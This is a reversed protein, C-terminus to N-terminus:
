DGVRKKAKLVEFTRLEGADVAHSAPFSAKGFGALVFERFPLRGKAVSVTVIMRDRVPKVAVTGYAYGNSWFRTGEAASFEFAGDVASYRFGTLALVTAWGAMARGYHHGCEAEDYPNRKLGDYRARADSICKLGNGIQGEYLMGAAATYELGTWVEAFYPFPNAPRGDPYSAILLGPEDGLAFSRMPNFLDALSDRHNYTMVSGLAARVNEPRALYGLGCVHAMLQGVLQDVLCGNGLQYDPNKFDTSGMGVLLSPAINAPDMPPVIKHIYYRGNFLNADTWLSGQAFLSACTRAFPKDGVRAAMKAAAQLAGLYWFEMEPNPGYYEVDMTNHQCGEMVGDKNADWGGPIWCFELAKRANPWLARLMEEDGSLQWDRYLKMVCGMQGDAAAKGWREVGLPLKARFSMQGDPGTEHGFEVDRLSRAIDGFLFAIAQEYNWVHTCSGFCCGAKDNCGEWAYFHGDETRFCTQSRLTSLNFLAAEKVAEPLDSRCFASVFAVTEEELKVAEAATREAADWADKYLTTYYNGLRTESWAFRNPFHWTLFFRFERKGGAPISARVALSARPTDGAATRELLVGDDALDDWFDLLPTGWADKLWSTRYSCIESVPTTLAITGWSEAAPDVGESSMLLGRVFRGERYANRNGKALSKTGDNGIFNPLSGCVTVDLAADSVNTVEYILIAVPIASSELDAPVLPNFARLRVKVPLAPDALNVQGFPYSADFSCERFCPLGPNTAKEVGESGEYEFVEVPGQLARLVPPAGDTKFRIAFFAGAPNFGKAPRNAIEWDRLDGRGGLSVTGTGIGGLPLAIRALHGQDYHKLFPWEAPGEARAPPILIVAAFAALLGSVPSRTNRM